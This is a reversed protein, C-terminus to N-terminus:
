PELAGYRLVSVESAYLLPQITLALAGGAGPLVPDTAHLQGNVGARVLLRLGMLAAQNPVPLVARGLGAVVGLRRPTNGDALYVVVDSYGRNLVYIVTRGPEPGFPRPRPKACATATLALLASVLARALSSM